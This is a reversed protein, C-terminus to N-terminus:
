TERHGCTSCGRPFASAGSAPATWNRWSTSRMGSRRAMARGPNRQGGQQVEIRSRRRGGARPHDDRGASRDGGRAGDGPHWPVRWFGKVWLGDAVAKRWAAPRDGRYLFTGGRLDEGRWSGGDLVREITTYGENPWRALPLREGDVFLEVIGGGDRFLDPFPGAHRIGLSKLDLEVVHDRAAEPLRAKVAPDSVPRFADGPIVRGGVLRVTGDARYVVREGEAGSDEKGLEFPTTRLYTGAHVHM